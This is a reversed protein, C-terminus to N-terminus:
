AAGALLVAAGAGAEEVLRLVWTVRVGAACPLWAAVTRLLLAPVGALLLPRLVPLLLLLLLLLLVAM